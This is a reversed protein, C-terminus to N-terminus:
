MFSTKLFNWKSKQYQYNTYFIVKRLYIANEGFTLLMKSQRQTGADRYVISM